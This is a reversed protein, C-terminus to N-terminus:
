KAKLLREADAACVCQTHSMIVYTSRDLLHTFEFM